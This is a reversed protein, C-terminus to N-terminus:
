LSLLDVRDPSDITVASQLFDLQLIAPTEGAILALRACIASGSTARWGFDPKTNTDTRTIEHNTL